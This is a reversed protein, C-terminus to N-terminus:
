ALYKADTIFNYNTFVNVTNELNMNDKRHYFHNSTLLVTRPERNLESRSSLLKVTTRIHIEM